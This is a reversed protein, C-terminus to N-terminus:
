GCPETEGWNDNTHLIVLTAPGATPAATATPSPPESPAVTAQLTSAGGPPTAGPPIATPTGQQFYGCGALLLGLAILWVGRNRMRM